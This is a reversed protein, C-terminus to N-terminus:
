DRRFILRIPRSKSLCVTRPQPPALDLTQSARYQRRNAADFSPSRAQLVHGILATTTSKGNTGTVAIVPARGAGDCKPRMTRGFLELDGICKSVGAEARAARGFPARPHAFPIGPSLVAAALAGWPWIEYPEPTIGEKM